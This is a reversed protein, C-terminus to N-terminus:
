FPCYMNHKKLWWESDIIKLVADCHNEGWDKIKTPSGDENLTKLGFSENFGQKYYPNFVGTAYSIGYDYRYKIYDNKSM